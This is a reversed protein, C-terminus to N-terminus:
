SQNRAFGCSLHSRNNVHGFVGIDTAFAAFGIKGEGEKVVAGIEEAHIDGGEDRALFRTKGGERDNAGTFTKRKLATLAELVVM